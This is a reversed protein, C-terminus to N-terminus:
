IRSRIIHTEYHSVTEEFELLTDADQPYYKAKEYDNGAFRKIAEIDTWETVTYFHCCDPEKYQWVKVSLNGETQLYEKTGDHLLFNLYNDANELNTRGHWVRTIM